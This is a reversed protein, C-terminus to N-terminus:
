KQELDITPQKVSRIKSAQLDKLSAGNNKKQTLKMILIIIFNNYRGNMYHCDNRSM